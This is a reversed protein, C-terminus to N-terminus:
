TGSTKRAPLTEGVALNSIGSLRSLSSSVSYRALYRVTSRTDRYRTPLAAARRDSVTRTGSGRLRVPRASSPCLGECVHFSDLPTRRIRHSCPRVTCPSAPPFVEESRPSLEFDISSRTPRTSHLLTGSLASLTQNM